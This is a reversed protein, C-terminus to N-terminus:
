LTQAISARASLVFIAERPGEVTFRFRYVDGIRSKMPSRVLFGDRSVNLLSVSVGHPELRCGIRGGAPLRPHPRDM